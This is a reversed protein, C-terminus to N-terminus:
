NKAVKEVFAVKIEACEEFRYKVLSTKVNNLIVYSHQIRVVRFSGAPDPVSTGHVHLVATRFNWVREVDIPLFNNSNHPRTFRTTSSYTKKM